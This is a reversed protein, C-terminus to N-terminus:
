MLQYEALRTIEVLTSRVRQRASPHDPDWEYVPAGGLLTNLLREKIGDGVPLPLLLVLMRDLVAHVDDREPIGNLFALPDFGYDRAGAIPAIWSEAYRIRQPVTVSSIWARGGPWGKVNPPSLLMMALGSMATVPDHTEPRNANVGAASLDPRLGLENVAGAVYDAPSKILAGRVDESFFHKSRLLQRLVPGVEWDNAVLTDAMGAVIEMNPVDYVFWRYLKRCLFIAARKRNYDQDTQDFILEIVDREGVSGLGFNAKEGFITKQGSDFRTSRFTGQLGDVIWGTLARSLEVIDFETYRPTGNEYTGEGICFLELIERPYNENPNGAVSLGLDLYRLMCPDITVKGTLERFSGFAYERFLRNQIYFYQAVYVVYLESTFHNHWFLTMKERLGHEPQEMLDFWWEQLERARILYQQLEPNGMEPFPQQGTWDGPPEPPAPQTLMADILTAPDSQLAGDLAAPSVGFGSRRLLHAAKEADWRDDGTPSWPTLDADPGASPSFGSLTVDERRDRRVGAETRTETRLTPQDM